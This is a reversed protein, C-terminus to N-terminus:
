ISYKKIDNPNVYGMNENTMYDLQLKFVRAADKDKKAWQFWIPIAAKRVRQVDEVSLRTVQSGAEKFKRMAEVNRRQISVYHHLSYSQVQEQVFDRMKPSLRKWAGMNVTLDMLDVPQYISMTGPPGFLIYKTVQGFGLDWNVAPGVYDAADITGKELAPFIDSGPLSVTSVGFQQFVEAVMGGPMRIKMGKLDELSNVPKKSHIINADHQIPGVYFLGYKAYIDRAMELMGLGYFMTDWQSPHDPGLPYSSLFVSAPIKGPWYLTFPNMGQLVGNRVADFLANNDAAVSKAPFPKVKLEGGSKEEFGNCWEQFLSYGTTGADWVSQVKWVHGRAAQANRIYPAGLVAAGGVLAANRIFKRRGTDAAASVARRGTSSRKPDM